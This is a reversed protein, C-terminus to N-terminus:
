FSFKYNIKPVMCFLIFNLFLFLMDQCFASSFLCPFSNHLLILLCTVHFWFHKHLFSSHSTSIYIKNTMSKEGKKKFCWKGKDWAVFGTRKRSCFNADPEIFQEEVQVFLKERFTAKWLLPSSSLGM